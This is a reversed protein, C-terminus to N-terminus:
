RAGGLASHHTQEQKAEAIESGDRHLSSSAVGGALEGGDLILTQGTFFAAAPSALYFFAEAIEEPAAHRGLPIRRNVDALMADTYEKRQMPTLVYGPSVTAVRLVPAFELAFSRCLALVGAKSANYDAYNPYGALGNTSATALLVGSGHVLMRAAASRWLGLVGLLNLDIVRRADAERMELITHRVSIGANAIVVDLPGFRDEVTSLAADVATWDAADCKIWTVGDHRPQPPQLDLNAVCDGVVAFRAATAFGIGSSGGTVVVVRKRDGSPM